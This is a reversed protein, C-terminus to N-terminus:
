RARKRKGLQSITWGPPMRQATTKRKSRIVSLLGGSFHPAWKQDMVTRTKVRADVRRMGSKTKVGWIGPEYFTSVKLGSRQRQTRNQAIAVKRSFLNRPM